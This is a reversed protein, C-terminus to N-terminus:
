ESPPGGDFHRCIDIPWGSATETAIRPNVFPNGAGISTEPSVSSAEEADRRKGSANLRVAFSSLRVHSDL